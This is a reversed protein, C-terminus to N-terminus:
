NYLQSPLGREEKPTVVFLWVSLIYYLLIHLKASVKIWLSKSVTMRAYMKHRDKKSTIFTYFSCVKFVVSYKLRGKLRLWSLTFLLVAPLLLTITSGQKGLAINAYRRFSREKVGSGKVSKCVPFSHPDRAERVVSCVGFHLLRCDQSM